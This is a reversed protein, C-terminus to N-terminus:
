NLINEILIQLNKNKSFNDEAYRLSTNGILTLQNIPVNAIQKILEILEDIKDPTTVWGSDSNKVINYIDSNIPTIALIPRASFMYASLKSPISTNGAENTMSLVLIHSKSQIIPVSGNPVDLFEILVNEFTSAFEQYQKKLSGAGAIVLKVNKIDALAFAKIVTDLGSLPGVNGLYMFTLINDSWYNQYSKFPLDDQWNFVLSFKSNDIERTDSLYSNMKKSIVIIKNANKLIYKDVPLLFFELFQQIFKPLKFLFSEPYIDQVHIIYPKNIKKCAYAVAFQSFLPWTNMYIKDFLKSNAIIYNYSAIGFSFSEYLRGLFGKGPFVFSPLQIVKFPRVEQEILSFHFGYPRSPKPRVVTVHINLKSLEEALSLGIQASVVPEPEFVCNVILINECTNNM